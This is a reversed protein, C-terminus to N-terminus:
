FIQLKIYQNIVLRFKFFNAFLIPFNAKNELVELVMEM